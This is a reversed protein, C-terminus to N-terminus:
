LNGYFWNKGATTNAGLIEKLVVDPGRVESHAKFNNGTPIRWMDFLTQRLQAQRPDKLTPDRVCQVIRKLNEAQQKALSFFDSYFENIEHLWFICLQRLLLIQNGYRTNSLLIYDFFEKNKKLVDLPVLELIDQMKSETAEGDNQLKMKWFAVHCSALYNVIGGIENDQKKWKCILYRESNAPRSTNPKHIAILDFSLYMLYILGVTFPTLVDFLKCVFM